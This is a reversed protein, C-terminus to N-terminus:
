KKGRKLEATMKAYEADVYTNLFHRGPYCVPTTDLETEEDLNTEGPGAGLRFAGFPSPLARECCAREQATTSMGVSASRLSSFNM